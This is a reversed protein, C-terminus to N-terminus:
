YVTQSVRLTLSDIEKLEINNLLNNMRTNFQEQHEYTDPLARIFPAMLALHGFLVLLVLRHRDKHRPHLMPVWALL